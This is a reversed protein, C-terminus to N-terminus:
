GECEFSVGGKIDEVPPKLKKLHIKLGQISPFNTKLINFCELAMSEILIFKQSKSFEVVKKTLKDYCVLNEEKNPFKSPNLSVEIRWEIEQWQDRELATVGVHVQVSIRDIIIKQYKLSLFDKNNNM